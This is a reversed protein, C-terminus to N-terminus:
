IIAHTIPSLASALPQMCKWMVNEYPSDFTSLRYSPILRSDFNGNSSREIGDNPKSAVFDNRRPDLLSHVIEFSFSLSLIKHIDPKYRRTHTTNVSRFYPYEYWIISRSYNNGMKPRINWCLICRSCNSHKHNPCPLNYFLRKCGCFFSTHILPHLISIFFVTNNIIKPGIVFRLLFNSKHRISDDYM